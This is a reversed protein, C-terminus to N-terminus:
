GGFQHAHASPGRDVRVFTRPEPPRDPDAGWRGGPGLGARITAAAYDRAGDDMEAADLPMQEVVRACREREAAVADVVPSAPLSLRVTGGFPSSTGLGMLPGFVQVLEWFTWRSWGDATEDKPKPRLVPDDFARTGKWRALRGTQVDMWRHRGVDTLQVWVPENINFEAAM